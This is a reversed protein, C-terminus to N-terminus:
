FREPDPRIAMTESVTHQSGPKHPHRYGLAKSVKRLSHIPKITQEDSVFKKYSLQLSSVRTNKACREGLRCLRLLFIPSLLLSVSLCLLLCLLSLSLPLSLSVSVSLAIPHHKHEWM